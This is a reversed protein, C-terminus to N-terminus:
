KETEILQYTIKAKKNIIESLEDIIEKLKKIQEDKDRLINEWCTEIDELDESITDDSNEGSDSDLLPDYDEDEESDSTTYEINMLRKWM